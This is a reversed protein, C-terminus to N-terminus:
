FTSFLKEMKEKEEEALLSDVLIRGSHEDTIIKKRSAIEVQTQPPITFFSGASAGREISVVALGNRVSSRIRDYAALLRDEITGRYEASKETLLAEEKATESLIDELEAKKHKLHNSKIELREKSQSIVEKKHEISAKMEKIQKEALQIELEQFEVEKTLSNFERNNRVTEQQKTYKKISEKHEDIANKKAKIQDEITELDTKLKESRTSLGAVEDELDEVELPLEGRVNRIEDIRTDIIQLDFIARLKEEVSLEKTNTM